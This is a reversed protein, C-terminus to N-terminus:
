VYHPHELRRVDELSIGKGTELNLYLDRDIRKVRTYAIPESPEWPIVPRKTGPQAIVDMRELVELLCKADYGDLEQSAVMKVIAQAIELKIGTFEIFRKKPRESSYRRPKWDCDRLAKSQANQQQKVGQEDVLSQLLALHAKLAAYNAKKNAM